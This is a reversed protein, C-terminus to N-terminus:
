RLVIKHTYMNQNVFVRLLYVGQSLEATNIEQKIFGSTQGINEAVLIQKGAIDSIDFKVESTNPIYMSISLRDDAPVPYVNLAINSSINSVDTVYTTTIEAVGSNEEYNNCYDKAVSYVAYTNGAELIMQLSDSDTSTIFNFPDGNVSVYIDVSKVGSHADSKTFHLTVLSNDVVSPVPDISSTPAELDIINNHVNTLIPANADFIISAQIPLETLHELGAKQMISFLVFGEGNPADTNPPLFGDDPNGILERTEQDLSQFLLSFIGNGDPANGIVRLICNQIGELDLESTFEKRFPSIAYLYEGFGFAEYRFTSIDFINTDILSTINVEVANAEATSLNEFAIRYDMRLDNSIYQQDTFGRPGYIANPDLSQVFPIIETDEEDGENDDVPAVPTCPACLDEETFEIPEEETDDELDEETFEWVDEATDENVVDVVDETNEEVVSEGPDSDVEWNALDEETFEWTDEQIDPLFPLFLVQGVETPAPLPATAGPNAPLGLNGCGACGVPINNSILNPVGPNSINAPTPTPSSFPLGTPTATILNRIANTINTNPNLSAFSAQASRAAISSLGAPTFNVNGALLQVVQEPSFISNGINSQVVLQQPASSLVNYMLTTTQGPGLMPIIYHGYYVTDQTLPDLTVVMSNFISDVKHSALSSAKTESLLTLTINEKPIKVFHQLGYVSRNSENTVNVLLKQNRNVLTRVPTSVYTTVQLPEPAELLMANHLTDTLTGDINVVLDWYGLTEEVFNFNATMYHSQSAMVNEGLIEEGDKVLKVTTNQNFGAGAINALIFNTNASFSPTMANVGKIDVFQYVSDNGCLNYTKQKVTFQGANPYLHIPNFDNSTGGDGFEWHVSDAHQSQDVFFALDQPASFDFGAISAYDECVTFPRPEIMSWEGEANKFRMYLIHQGLPLVPLDLVIDQEISDAPANIAMPIGNGVGPETDIYYEGEIIQQAAPLPQLVFFMRGFILGWRGNTGLARVYIHHFGPSIGTLPITFNQEVSDAVSAFILPTGNGVGPESDIYYEAKLINNNAANALTSAPIIYFMRCMTMGWFNGESQFRLYLHNFGEPLGSTSIDFDFEVSDAPTFSIETGLGVGPETNFYYEGRIINQAM